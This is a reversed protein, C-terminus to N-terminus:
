TSTGTIILVVPIQIVDMTEALRTLEIVSSGYIKGDTLLVWLDSSRVEDVAQANRM